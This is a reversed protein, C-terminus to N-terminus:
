IDSSLFSSKFVIKVNSWGHVMFCRLLFGVVISNEKVDWM